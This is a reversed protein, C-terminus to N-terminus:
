LVISIFAWENYRGDFCLITQEDNLAITPAQAFAYEGDRAVVKDACFAVAQSVWEERQREGLAATVAILLCALVARIAVSSAGGGCM